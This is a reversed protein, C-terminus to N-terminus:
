GGASGKMKGNGEPGDQTSAGRREEDKAVAEVVVKSAGVHRPEHLGGEVKAEHGADAVAEEEHEAGHAEPRRQGEHAM